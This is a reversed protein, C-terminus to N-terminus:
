KSDAKHHCRTCNDKIMFAKKGDHCRGCYKGAYLDNMTIKVTGKKMKPFVEPNHCDSCTLGANKHVTGDFVVMGMPSGTFELTKGGGVAFANGGAAVMMVLGLAVNRKNM